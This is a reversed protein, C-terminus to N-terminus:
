LNKFTKAWEGTPVIKASTEEAIASNFDLYGSSILVNDIIGSIRKIDNLMNQKKQISLRADFEFRKLNIIALDFEEKEIQELLEEKESHQFIKADEGFTKMVLYKVMPNEAQLDVLTIVRRIEKKM